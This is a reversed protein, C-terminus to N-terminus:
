NSKFNIETFWNNSVTGSTQNLRYYLYSTNNTFELKQVKHGYTSGLIQGTDADTTGAGVVSANGDM